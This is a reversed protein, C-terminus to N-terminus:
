KKLQQNWFTSADYIYNLTFYTKAFVTKTKNLYFDNEIKENFKKFLTM